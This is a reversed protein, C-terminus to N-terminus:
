KRIEKVQCDEGGFSKQIEEVNEMSCSDGLLFCGTATVVHDEGSSFSVLVPAGKEYTYLYLTNGEFSREVFSKGATCLSAAALNNVGELSNIRSALASCSKATLNAQLKQSMGETNEVGLADLLQDEPIVIEYVAKPSNPDEPAADSLLQLIDEMGTMATLYNENEAMESILAVIEIGRDYLVPSAAEVAQESPSVTSEPENSIEFTINGNQGTVAEAMIKYSVGAPVSFTVQDGIAMTETRELVWQNEPDECYLSVDVDAPGSSSEFKVTLPLVQDTSNLDGTVELRELMVYYKEFGGDEKRCGAFAFVMALVLVVSIAKKM